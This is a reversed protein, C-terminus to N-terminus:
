RCRAVRDVVEGHFDAAPVRLAHDSAVQDMGRKLGAVGIQMHPQVVIGLLGHSGPAAKQLPEAVGVRQAAERM